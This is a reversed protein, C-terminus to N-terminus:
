PIVASVETSNSSEVGTSSVSRVVYYYTTGSVVTGDTFNTAAMPSGNLLSYQGSPLLTPHPVSKHSFNSPSVSLARNLRASDACNTTTLLLALEDRRV